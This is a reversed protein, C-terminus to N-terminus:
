FEHKKLILFGVIVGRECYPQFSKGSQTSIQPLNKNEVQTRVICIKEVPHLQIRGLIEKEVQTSVICNYKM